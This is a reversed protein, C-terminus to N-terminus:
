KNYKLTAFIGTIDDINKGYDNLDGSSADMGDGCMENILVNFINEIDADSINIVVNKGNKDHISYLINHKKFISLLIETNINELKIKHKIIYM